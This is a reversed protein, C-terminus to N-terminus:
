DEPLKDGFVEDLVQPDIDRGYLLPAAATPNSAYRIYFAHLQEPTYEQPLKGELQAKGARLFPDHTKSLEKSGLTKL